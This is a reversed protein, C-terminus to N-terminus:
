HPRKKLQRKLDDIEHQQEQIAEVLLAVMQEYRVGSPTGEDPGSQYVSALRPDVKIVDQAILGVQRGIHTPDSKLEYSVPKLKMVENLGVDLPDINKKLRGDSALCTTTTDVTLNGTGTTWCVTGTTGASSTAVNPLQIAGTFISTATSPTGTGTASWIPTSGACIGITNSQGSSTFACTANTGLLLNNIGTTLVTSGTAAGIITDNTGVTITAGSSFGVATNAACAGQCALLSSAGVATSNAGTTKTGTIGTMAGNGIAVNGNGTLIFEGANDGFADATGTGTFNILAGQGFASVGATNTTVANAAYTGVATVFQASTLGNAAHFGVATDNLGGTLAGLSGNGFGSDNTGTVVGGLASTGMATNTVSAGPNSQVPISVGSVQLSAGSVNGSGDVTFGTSKLFGNNFTYSSFDIGYNVTASGTTKIITGTTSIPIHGGFNTIDLGINWGTNATSGSWIALAAEETTAHVADDGTLVAAVGFKQTAAGTSQISANAELGAIVGIGTVGSDVRVQPNVGTLIPTGSVPTIGAEAWGWVGVISSSASLAVSNIAFGGIAIAAGTKTSGGIADFVSLAGSGNALNDTVNFNNASFNLPSSVSQTPTAGTLSIFPLASPAATSGSSNGLVTGSAIPALNGIAVSGSGPSKTDAHVLAGALLALILAFRKM